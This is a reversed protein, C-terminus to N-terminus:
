KPHDILAGDEFIVSVIAELVDQSQKDKHGSNSQSELTDQRHDAFKVELVSDFSLANRSRLM